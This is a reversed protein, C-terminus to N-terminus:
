FEGVVEGGAITSLAHYVKLDISDPIFRVSGDGLLFNAGKEPHVSRFGDVLKNGDPGRDNPPRECSAGPMYWWANLPDSPESDQEGLYFTNSLGDTNEIPQGSELHNFGNSVPTYRHIQYLGKAHGDGMVGAYNTRASKNPYGRREVSSTGSDAPCRFIPIVTTEGAEAVGTKKAVASLYVAFGPSALGFQRLNNKCQLTRARDRSRLVAPLLLGMLISIIAISILLELVTFATRDFRNPDQSSRIADHENVCNRLDLAVRPFCNSRIEVHTGKM